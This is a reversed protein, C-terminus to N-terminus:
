SAIDQSPLVLMLILARAAPRTCPECESQQAPLDQFGARGMGIMHPEKLLTFQEAARSYETARMPRKSQKMHM